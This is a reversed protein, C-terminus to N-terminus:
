AGEEKQRLRGRGVAEPSDPPSGPKPAPRPQSEPAPTPVLVDSGPDFGPGGVAPLSLEAYGYRLLEAALIDPVDQEVGAKLTGADRTIRIRM